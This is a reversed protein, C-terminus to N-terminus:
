SSRRLHSRRPVTHPHGAPKPHWRCTIPGGSAPPTTQTVHVREAQDVGIRWAYFVCEFHVVPNM